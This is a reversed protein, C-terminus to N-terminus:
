ARSANNTAAALCISKFLFAEVAPRGLELVGQKLTESHLKFNESQQGVTGGDKIFAVLDLQAIAASALEEDPLDKFGELLPHDRYNM